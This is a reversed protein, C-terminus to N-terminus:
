NRNVDPWIIWHKWQKDDKFEFPNYGGSLEFTMKHRFAVEVGLNPSATAWHPINTKVGIRKQAQMHHSLSVGFLFTLIIIKFYRM